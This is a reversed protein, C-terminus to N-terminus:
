WEVREMSRDGRGQVTDRARNKGCTVDRKLRNTHARRTLFVVRAALRRLYTNANLIYAKLDIQSVSEGETSQVPTQCGLLQEQLGLKILTQQAANAASQGNM